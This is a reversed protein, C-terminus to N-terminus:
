CCGGGSQKLHLSKKHTRNVNKNGSKKILVKTLNVFAEEVKYDTKASVELFHSPKIGHATCFEKVMGKTVQIKDIEDVKNGLLFIEAESSTNKEKFETLWKGVSDFSSKKLMDFVIFVGNAGRYYNSVISNFREQGATDWIQLKVKETVKNNEIEITKIKFDVGITSSTNETYSNETYRQLLCTKGVGSEGIIIIKFLYDYTNQM